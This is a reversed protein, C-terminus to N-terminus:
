NPNTFIIAYVRPLFEWNVSVMTSDYQSYLGICADVYYVPNPELGNSIFISIAPQSMHVQSIQM